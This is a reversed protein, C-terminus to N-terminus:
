STAFAKAAFFACTNIVARSASFCRPHTAIQSLKATRLCAVEDTYLCDVKLNFKAPSQLSDLLSVRSCLHLPKMNVVHISKPAIKSSAHHTLHWSTSLGVQCFKAETLLACAEKSEVFTVAGTPLFMASQASSNLLRWSGNCPNILLM